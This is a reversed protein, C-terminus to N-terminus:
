EGVLSEWFEGGSGFRSRFITSRLEVSSTRSMQLAFSLVCQTLADAAADPGGDVVESMNAVNNTAAELTRNADFMFHLQFFWSSVSSASCKFSHEHLLTSYPVISPSILEDLFKPLSHMLM